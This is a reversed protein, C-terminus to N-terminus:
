TPRSKKTHEKVPFEHVHFMGANGGLGSLKICTWVAHSPHWQEFRITGSVGQETFTARAVTHRRRFLGDRERKFRAM